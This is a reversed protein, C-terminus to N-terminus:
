QQQRWPPATQRVKGRFHHPNGFVASHYVIFVVPQVVTVRGRPPSEQRHHLGCAAGGQGHRPRRPATKARARGTIEDWPAEICWRTPSWNLARRSYQFKSFKCAKVLNSSMKVKYTLQWLRRYILATAVKHKKYKAFFPVRKNEAM